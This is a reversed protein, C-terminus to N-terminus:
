SRGPYQSPSAGPNASLWALYHNYAALEADDSDDYAAARREIQRASARIVVRERAPPSPQTLGADGAASEGMAPEGAITPGAHQRLVDRIEKAWVWIAFAAFVPWEIAYGFSLANGDRARNIQWWGLLLFGIVLVVLGAHVLIWRWTLVYRVIIFRLRPPQARLV